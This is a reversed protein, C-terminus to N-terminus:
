RYTRLLWQRSVRAVLRVWYRPWDCTSPLPQRYYDPCIIPEMGYLVPIDLVVYHNRRLIFPVDYDIYTDYEFVIIYNIKSSKKRQQGDFKKDM